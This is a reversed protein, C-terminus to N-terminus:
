ALSKARQLIGCDFYWLRARKEVAMAATCQPRTSQGAAEKRSRLVAKTTVMAQQQM